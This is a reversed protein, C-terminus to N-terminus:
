QGGPRAGLGLVLSFVDAEADLWRRYQGEMRLLLAPGIRWQYGLGFGASYDTESYDDRTVRDAWDVWSLSGQGLLYIGPRSSGGPSFAARGGLWLTNFTSDFSEGVYEFDSSTRRFSFEPGIALQEGALWSVHLSPLSPAPGPIEGGPFQILTGDGRDDSGRSAVGFLMGVETRGSGEEAKQAEAQSVLMLAVLCTPIPRLKM